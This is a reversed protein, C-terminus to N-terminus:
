KEINEGCLRCVRYGRCVCRKMKREKEERKKREGRGRKRREEEYTGDQHKRRVIAVVSAGGMEVAVRSGLTMRKSARRRAWPNPNKDKQWQDRFRWKLITRRYVLTALTTAAGFMLLTTGAWYAWTKWLHGVTHQTHTHTYLFTNLSYM